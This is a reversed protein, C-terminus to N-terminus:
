LESKKNELLLDTSDYHGALIASQGTWLYATHVYSIWEPLEVWTINDHYPPHDMIIRYSGPLFWNLPAWYEVAVVYIDGYSIRWLHPINTMNQVYELTCSIYVVYKGSEFQPLLEELNGQLSNNCQPCGTLDLCLDGCGYDRGLWYNIVGTDPDGIVLLSKNTALSKNYASEYLAQREWRRHSVAILGDLIVPLLYIFSVIAITYLLSKVKM